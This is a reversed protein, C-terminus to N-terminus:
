ELQIGSGSPTSIPPQIEPMLPQNVVPVMPTPSIPPMVTLNKPPNKPLFKIVLMIVLVFLLICFVFLLFYLRVKQKKALPPKEKTNENKLEEDNVMSYQKLFYVKNAIFALDLNMSLDAVTEQLVSSPIIGLVLFDRKKFVNKISEYISGNVATVKIKKDLKYIKSLTEEFPVMDIFKQIEDDMKETLEGSFDKEITVNPSYIFIVNGKELKNIELFSEIFREFADGNILEQDSILDAPFDMKLMSGDADKYFLAKDKDIYCVTTHKESFDM